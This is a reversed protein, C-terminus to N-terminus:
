SLPSSVSWGDADIRVVAEDTSDRLPWAVEGALILVHEGRHLDALDDLCAILDSSDLPEADEGGRGPAAYVAAVPAGHVVDRAPPAVGPGLLHFTAPCQLDSM